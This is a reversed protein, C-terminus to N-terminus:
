TLLGGFTSALSMLCSVRPHQPQRQVGDRVTPFEEVGLALPGIGVGTRACTMLIKMDKVQARAPGSRAESTPGGDRMPTYRRRWLKPDSTVPLM